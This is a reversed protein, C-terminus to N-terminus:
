EVKELTWSGGTVKNTIPNYNWLIMDASIKFNSMKWEGNKVNIPNGSSDTLAEIYEGNERFSLITYCHSGYYDLYVPGGSWVGVIRSKATLLLCGAVLLAGVLIIVTAILAVKQSNNKSKQEM